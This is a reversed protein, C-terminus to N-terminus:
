LHNVLRLKRSISVLYQEERIGDLEIRCLLEHVRVQQVKVREPLVGASADYRDDDRDDHPRGPITMEDMIGSRIGNRGTIIGSSRM